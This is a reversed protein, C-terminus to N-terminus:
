VTEGRRKKGAAVIQQALTPGTGSSGADSGVAPSPTKHMRERATERPDDTPKEEAAVPMCRLMGIAAKADMDTETAIYLANAYHAASASAFESTLIAKIRNREQVRAKKSGKEDDDDHDEDKPGAKAKKKSKKSDDDECNEDDSDSAKADDDEEDADDAAKPKKDDDDDAAKTDTDDDDAAKTKKDKDDDEAKSKKAGVALAAIRALTSQQGGAVSTTSM